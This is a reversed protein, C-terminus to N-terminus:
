GRAFGVQMGRDDFVTQILLSGDANICYGFGNLALGAFFPISFRIILILTWCVIMLLFIPINSLLRRLEIKFNEVQVRLTERKEEPNKVLKIKALFNIGRHLIFNHIGHSYSMLFLM